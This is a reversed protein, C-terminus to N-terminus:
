PRGGAGGASGPPRAIVVTRNEPVLYARAVRRVDAATVAELRAAEDNVGFPTGRHLMHSQLLSAKSEATLRQSVAGARAQNRAKALELETVGEAQLREIEEQVLAEIREIGVGQNPLAGVLLMGPGMRRDVQAIVDLAAREDNVLRQRLRSSEGTSFVQALLALADHDAHAAPPLGYAMWMLPLQALPAELEVRREGDTRPVAPPAPLPPVEPGAPIDGFYEQALARVQELTVDGVVTLVAHNPAYYRRYFAEVDAVTAADLDEMSGIVTHRYPEYDRNAVTDLTLQAEAYPQNDVRQRREEKVVERQNEFNAESVRLRAMREAHLWFALNLRNAPVVEYYATRDTNTTANYVGGARSVLRDMQGSELNETEEFLMHEFLHAFGSRGEDEHASGVRYWMNVAVLPTSHDQSVVVELGNALSFTDISLAPIVLGDLAEALRDPTAQGSLALGHWAPTAALLALTALPTGLALWRPLTRTMPVDM